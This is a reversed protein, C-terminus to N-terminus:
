QRMIGPGTVQDDAPADGHTQVAGARDRPPDDVAEPEALAAVSEVPRGRPLHKFRAAVLVPKKRWREQEIGRGAGPVKIRDVLRGNAVPGGAAEFTRPRWWLHRDRGGAAPRMVQINTPDPVPQGEQDVRHRLRVQEEARDVG